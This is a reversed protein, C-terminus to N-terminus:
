WPYGKVIKHCFSMLTVEFRLILFRAFGIMLRLVYPVKGLWVTMCPLRRAIQRVIFSGGLVVDLEERHVVFFFSFFFFSFLSVVPLPRPFNVITMKIKYGRIARGRDDPIAERKHRQRGSRISSM